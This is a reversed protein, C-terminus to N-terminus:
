LTSAFSRSDSSYRRRRLWLLLAVAVAAGIFSEDSALPWEAAAFVGERGFVGLVDAEAIAGCIHSGGGYNYETIALKTGPDSAAIKDFLRPILRIPGFTSSSTIWSTETYSPDWLSRPAQLRAAVVAPTTDTGIIRTGGRTAEPYWHVDLVDVLRRGAAQEAAAVQSLWFEQFDRGAADPAGQLLTRGQGSAGAQLPGGPLRPDPRRRRRPGQRSGRLRQDPRDGRHRREQVPGPRDGAAGGRRAHRQEL